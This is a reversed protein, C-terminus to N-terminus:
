LLSDTSATRHTYRLQGHYSRPLIEADKLLNLLENYEPSDPATRDLINLVQILMDQTEALQQTAGSLRRKVESDSEFSTRFSGVREDKSNNKSNLQDQKQDAEEFAAPSPEPEDPVSHLSSEFDLILYPSDKGFRLKTLDINIEDEHSQNASLHEPGTDVDFSFKQEEEHLVPVPTLDDFRLRDPESVTDLQTPKEKLGQRIFASLEIAAKQDAPNQKPAKRRSSIDKGKSGNKDVVTRVSSAKRLAGPTSRKSSTSLLNGTSHAFLPNSSHHLHEGSISASRSRASPSGSSSDLPSTSNLLSNSQQRQQQQQLRAKERAIYGYGFKEEPKSVQNMVSGAGRKSQRRAITAKRSTIKTLDIQVVMVTPRYGGSAIAMARPINSQPHVARGKGLISQANQKKQKKGRKPRRSDGRGSHHDPDDNFEPPPIASDLSFASLEGTFKRTRSGLRSRSYPSSPTKPSKLDELFQEIPNIDKLGLDFGEAGGMDSTCSRSRKYFVNPSVPSGKPISPLFDIVALVDKATANATSNALCYDTLAVVRITDSNLLSNMEERVDSMYLILNWFLKPFHEKLYVNSLQTSVRNLDVRVFQGDVPNLLETLMPLFTAFPSTADHSNDVVEEESSSHMDSLMRLLANHLAFPSMHECLVSSCTKPQAVATQRNFKKLALTAAHTHAICFKPVFTHKCHPCLVIWGDSNRNLTPVERWNARLEWLSLTRHCGPCTDTSDVVGRSVNLLVLGPEVLGKSIQEARLGLPGWSFPLSLSSPTLAGNLTLLSDLTSDVATSTVTQDREYVTSLSSRNNSSGTIGNTSITQKLKTYRESLWFFRLYDLALSADREDSFVHCKPSTSINNPIPQSDERDTMQNLSEGFQSRSYEDFNPHIIASAYTLYEERLIPFCLPSTVVGDPVAEPQPSMISGMAQYKALTTLPLGDRHMQIMKDFLVIDVALHEEVETSNLSRDFMFREWAQSETLQVLYRRNAEHCADIFETRKFPSECQGMDMVTPSCYTRYSELLSVFFSLFASRVEVADFVEKKGFSSLLAMSFRKGTNVTVSPALLGNNNIPGSTSSSVSAMQLRDEGHSSISPIVRSGVTQFALDANDLEHATLPTYINAFQKLKKKLDRRLKTPMPVVDQDWILKNHDLDVTVVESPVSIEDVTGCIGIIYPVPSDLFDQLPPPLVPIYVHHWSFPYLLTKLSEAVVALVSIRESVLLCQREALICNFLTIVNRLDLSQFLLRFSFDHAFPHRSLSLVQSGISFQVQTHGLPPLPVECMFNAIYKELPVGTTNNISLMYLETLYIRFTDLYPWHSILVLSKPVFVPEHISSPLGLQQPDTWQEFVTLCSGYLRQGTQLTLGFSFFFPPLEQQKIWVGDPLCFLALAPPLPTDEYDERPFRDVVVPQYPIDFPSGDANGAFSDLSVLPTGVSVTIFYDAVRNRM